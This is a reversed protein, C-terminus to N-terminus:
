HNDETEIKLLVDLLEDIQLPKTLHFDMGASITNSAEKHATLAIIPIHIGYRKEETRILETAECGNMVPMECDMLIFDYPLAGSHRGEGIMQDGLVKSVRDFADKGNDCSDVNAGLKLLNNTALRRLLEVDEVILVNKGDLLRGRSSKDDDDDLKQIVNEQVPPHHPHECDFHSSCSGLGLQHDPGLLVSPLENENPQLTEETTEM